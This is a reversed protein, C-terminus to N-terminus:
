KKFHQALKRSHMYIYVWQSSRGTGEFKAAIKLLAPRRLIDNESLRKRIIGRVSSPYARLAADIKKLQTRNLGKAGVEDFSERSDLPVFERVFVDVDKPDLVGLYEAIVRAHVSGAAALAELMSRPFPFEGETVCLRGKDRRPRTVYTGLRTMEKDSKHQRLWMVALTVPIIARDIIGMVGESFIGPYKARLGYSRLVEFNGQMLRAADHTGYFGIDLLKSAGGAISRLRTTM